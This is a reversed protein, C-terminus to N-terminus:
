SIIVNIMRQIDNRCIPCMNLALACNACTIMHRCPIFVVELMADMCIKCIHTEPTRELEDMSEKISQPSTIAETQMIISREDVRMANDDGQYSMGHPPATSTVSTPSTTHSTINSATSPDESMLVESPPSVQASSTSPDESVESPPSTQIGSTFLDESMSVESPPSAQIDYTSPDESMLVESPPSAQIGSTSPDESMLVESPPSVQASSTSPDESVESPPSVQASSTSPDESVESHLSVQASSTSPNESLVSVYNMTRTRIGSYSNYTEIVLMAIDNQVENESSINNLVENESSIENLVENESSIENLVENESSIENLVENESSIDNLTQRTEDEFKRIVADICSEMGFFPMGTKQIHDKLAIKVIHSPYGMRLVAKIIDLNMLSDLEKDDVPRSVSSANTSSTAPATNSTQKVAPAKRIHLSKECRVKDIFEQGKKLIVYYCEPFWYAHENWPIDDKEWNRLGNGCYFCRVHDSLGVYFFGAEALDCPKQTVREPWKIALRSDNFSALRSETLAFDKRKPGLYKPFYTEWSVEPKNPPGYCEPYSGAMLRSTGCEDEGSKQTSTNTQPTSNQRPWQELINSHHISVNGVPQGRIFPCHPFHRQHEGRPTDGVEWAGVIGRCFVCSCHDATRLYYFGDSALESPDLWKIPWDIFTDLREKEFRLSDFSTFTKSISPKPNTRLGQAFHCDPRKEKHLRAIDDVPSITTVNVEWKCNFCRVNDEKETYYFGAQALKKKDINFNHKEFTNLRYEERALSGHDLSMDGMEQSMDDIEQSLDSM